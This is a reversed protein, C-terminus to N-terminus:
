ERLSPLARSALSRPATIYAHPQAFYIDHSSHLHTTQNDTLLSEVRTLDNDDLAALLITQRNHRTTAKLFATPCQVAALTAAQDFGYFWSNDIFAATFRLDYPHSVSEWIRNVSEPM